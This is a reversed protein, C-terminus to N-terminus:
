LWDMGSHYSSSAAQTTFDEGVVYAYYEGDAREAQMKMAYCQAEVWNGMFTEVATKKSYARRVINYTTM